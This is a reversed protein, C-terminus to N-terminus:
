GSDADTQGKILKKKLSCNRVHVEGMGVLAVPESAISFPESPETGDSTAMAEDDRRWNAM